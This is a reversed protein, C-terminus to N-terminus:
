RVVNAVLEGLYSDVREQGCHVKRRILGRRGLVGADSRGVEIRGRGSLGM